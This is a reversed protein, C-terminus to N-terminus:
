HLEQPNEKIHNTNVYMATVCFCKRSFSRSLFDMTYTSKFKDVFSIIMLLYFISRANHELVTAIKNSMSLNKDAM